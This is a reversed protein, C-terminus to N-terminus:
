ASGDRLFSGEKSRRQLHSSWPFISSKPIWTVKAWQMTHHLGLEMMQITPGLSRVESDTSVRDPFTHM